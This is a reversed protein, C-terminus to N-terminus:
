FLLSHLYRLNRHSSALTEEKQPISFRLRKHGKLGLGSDVGSNRLNLPPIKAKSIPSSTAPRDVPRLLRM